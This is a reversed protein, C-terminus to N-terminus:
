LFLHIIKLSKGIGFNGNLFLKEEMEELFIMNNLTLNDKFM